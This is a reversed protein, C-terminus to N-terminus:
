SRGIAQTEALTQKMLALDDSPSRPRIAHNTRARSRASSIGFKSRARVAMDTLTGTRLPANRGPSLRGSKTGRRTTM